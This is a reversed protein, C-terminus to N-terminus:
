DGVRIRSTIQHVRGAKGIRFKLEYIYYEKGGRIVTAETDATGSLLNKSFIRPGRIYQLSTILIPVDPETLSMADWRIHDGVQAFFTFPDEEGSDLVKTNEGTSWQITNEPSANKTDILISIKHEEQATVLGFYFFILFGFYVKFSRM